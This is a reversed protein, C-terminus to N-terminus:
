EHSALQSGLLKHTTSCMSQMIVISSFHESVSSPIHM